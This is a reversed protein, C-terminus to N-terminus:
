FLWLMSCSVLIKVEASNGLPPCQRSNDDRGKLSLKGSQTVRERLGKTSGMTSKATVEM